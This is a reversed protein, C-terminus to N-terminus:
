PHLVRTPLRSTGHQHRDGEGRESVDTLIEVQPDGDILEELKSGVLFRSPTHEAKVKGHASIFAERMSKIVRKPPPPRVDSTLQEARTEAERAVQCRADLWASCIDGIM